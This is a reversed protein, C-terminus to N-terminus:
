RGMLTASTVQNRRRRASASLMLPMPIDIPPSSVGSTASESVRRPQRQVARAEPM